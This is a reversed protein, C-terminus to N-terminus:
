PAADLHRGRPVLPAMGAPPRGVEIWRAPGVLPVLAIALWRRKSRGELELLYGETTAVDWVCWASTLVAAQALGIGLVIVGTM